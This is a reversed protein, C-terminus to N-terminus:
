AQERGTPYLKRVGERRRLWWAYTRPLLELPDASGLAKAAHVPWNPDWMMERALATKFQPATRAMERVLFLGPPIAM